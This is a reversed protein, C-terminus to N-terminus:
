VAPRREPSSHPGHPSRPWGFWCGAPVVHQFIHGNNFGEGMIVEQIEGSSLIQVLRLPGGTYFHWIEDSKIRHLRSKKGEPILFYIATSFSRDGGFRDPLSKEPVYESARYSERFYGGEPHPKLDYMKILIDATVPTGSNCNMIM